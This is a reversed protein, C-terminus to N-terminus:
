HNSPPASAGGKAANARAAAAQARPLMAEYRLQYSDRIPLGSKPDTRNIYWGIATLKPDGDNSLMKAANANIQPNFLAEEPRDGLVRESVAKEVNPDRMNIQLFGFSRDGTKVNGNFAYADGGSERLAIATFTIAAEDTSFAARMFAFIQDDTFVNM